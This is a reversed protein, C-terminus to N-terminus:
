PAAPVPVRLEFAAGKSNQPPLLVLSGGMSKALDRSISLGLGTGSAGENVETRVREFPEFIRGAAEAPIGPGHDTVRIVLEGGTVRADIEVPGGPVYKEVNSLLNGLIQSLADADCHCPTDTNEDSRKITLGCRAFSVAFSEIMVSVIEGPICPVPTQTAKSKTSRSFTLVNDILRGLRRTEGRVLDLRRKSEDPEDDVLETALDINLLINTLPSRLEHSVRNVFSVRRMALAQQRRQTLFVLLGFVAIAAALLVSILLPVSIEVNFSSYRAAKAPEDWSALDFDGFRSALPRLVDPQDSVPTGSQALIKGDLRLLCPGLAEANSASAKQFWNGLQQGIDRLATETADSAGDGAPQMLRNQYPEEFTRIQKGLEELFSIMATRDYRSRAQEEQRALLFGGLLVM